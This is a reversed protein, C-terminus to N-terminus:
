WFVYWLFVGYSLVIDSLLLLITRLHHFSKEVFIKDLFVEEPQKVPCTVIIKDSM